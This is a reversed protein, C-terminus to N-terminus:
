RSGESGIRLALASVLLPWVARPISFMEKLAKGAKKWWPLKGEGDNRIGSMRLKDFSVIKGSDRRQEIVENAVSLFGFVVAGIASIWLPLAFTVAVVTGLLIGFMWGMGFYALLRGDVAGKEGNGRDGGRSPTPGLLTPAPVIGIEIKTIFWLRALDLLKQKTLTVIAKGEAINIQKEQVGGVMLTVRAEDANSKDFYVFYVVAGMRQDNATKLFDELSGTLM